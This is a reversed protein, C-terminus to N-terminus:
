IGKWKSEIKEAVARIAFGADEVAGAAAARDTEQDHHLIADAWVEAQLPLPVALPTLRAEHPVHESCLTQLGATQAEVAAIGLGEFRSPFAFVDMASYLDEPRDTTGYFIVRDSIGLARSEEELAARDDGEGVLLLVADPRRRLVEPLVQLLFQQNKQYCLRGINGIVLAVGVGLEARVRDRAEPSFRFRDIEIGNPIFTYGQRRLADPAFLFAAAEQSCAWLDTAVDAYKEKARNHLVMKLARSASKRLATNHSHAIRVPVGAERALDLYQLSMAQYANLHVVDYQRERLLERFMRHNTKLDRLSGSLQVFRVGLAELRATFVSPCLEAAVLNVSLSSLDLHTLVNTLFSEIGGSEWKECYLCIKTQM